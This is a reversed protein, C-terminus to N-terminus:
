YGNGISAYRSGRPVNKNALQAKAYNIANRLERASGYEVWSDGERVRLVNQLLRQEAAEIQSETFAM